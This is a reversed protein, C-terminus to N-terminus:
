TVKITGTKKCIWFIFIDNSANTYILTSYGGAVAVLIKGLLQDRQNAITEKLKKKGAKKEITPLSLIDTFCQFFIIWPKWISLVNEKAIKGLCSKSLELNHFFIANFLILIYLLQVADNEGAKELQEIRSNQDEISNGYFIFPDSTEGMLNSVFRQPLQITWHNEMKYDHYLADFLQLNDDLKSM